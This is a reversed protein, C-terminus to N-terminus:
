GRQVRERVLLVPICSIVAAGILYYAIALKDGTLAILWTVIAPTFGGFVMVGISYSIAVGTVRISTPFLEGLVGSACSAYCALLAGITVQVVILSALTPVQALLDFLPYALVATLLTGFLMPVKKGIRDSLLGVMPCCALMTVGYAIQGLYSERLSLHLERVAYTSFYNSIYTAITWFLMVLVGMGITKYHRLLTYRLASKQTSPQAANALFEPTEDVTRRIYIGVPAILLGFVFALRWAGGFIEVQTFISSLLLGIFGAILVGCGQSMQQFAAYLGRKGPPANEHLMAVAGGVEGGASFGQILRGAVVILPAALGISAYGPCFAIVATGLAMLLITLSMGKKRGVRDAYTGIVLAGIPRAIFGVGFTAFTLMLAITDSTVAFFTKSIPVAFIGYAIFDYIELLNGMTAGIAARRAQPRSDTATVTKGITDTNANIAAQDMDTSSSSTNIM